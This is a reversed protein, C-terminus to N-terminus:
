MKLTLEEWAVVLPNVKQAVRDDPPAVQDEEWEEEQREDPSGDLSLSTLMM